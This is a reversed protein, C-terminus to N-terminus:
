SSSARWRDTMGMSMSTCCAPSSARRRHSAERRGRSYGPWLHGSCPAQAGPNQVGVGVQLCEQCSGKQGLLWRLIPDDGPCGWSKKKKRQKRRNGGPVIEQLKVWCLWVGLLSWVGLSKQRASSPLWSAGETEMFCCHSHPVPRGRWRAGPPRDGTGATDSSVQGTGKNSPPLAGEPLRQRGVRFTSWQSPKFGSEAVERGRSQAPRGFGAQRGM